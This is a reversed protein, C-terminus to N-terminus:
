QGLIDYTTTGAVRVKGYVGEWEKHYPHKAYAELSTLGVLEMCMGWQRPRYTVDTTVSKEGARLKKSADGPIQFINLPARLKGYWVRKVVGKMKKPLDDNAKFWADWDAQTAGEIATFAFCHMMNKEGAALSGALLMTAAITTFARRMPFNYGM